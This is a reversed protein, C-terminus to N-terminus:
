NMAAEEMRHGPKSPIRIAASNRNADQRRTAGGPGSESQFERLPQAKNDQDHKQEQSKSRYEPKQGLHHLLACM